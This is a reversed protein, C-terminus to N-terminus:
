LLTQAIPAFTVSGVGFVNMEPFEANKRGFRTKAAGKWKTYFYCFGIKSPNQLWFLQNEKPFVVM